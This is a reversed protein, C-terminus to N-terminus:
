KLIDSFLAEEVLERCLKDIKDKDTTKPLKTTKLCENIEQKQKDAWEIIKDYSWAGNRIELLEDADPRRVHVEGTSIIEKGMRLLRVLHMAHKTDLGHAAELKARKKNRTRKWNEYQKWEQMARQFKQELTFLKMIGIDLKIGDELLNKTAGLESSSLKEREPLGFETREPKHTPPELLWKRHGKIRKLQQHAYGSFTNNAQQSLFLNRHEYLKHFIPTEIIWDEPDTFLIEIINPNCASALKLFKRLGFIVIDYPYNGESQEFNNAFGLFYEKPPIALGKVDIDSEPTSTHYAQSGHVTAFITRNELWKYKSNYGDFPNINWKKTM